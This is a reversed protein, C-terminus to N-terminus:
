GESRLEALCEKIVLKMTESKEELARFDRYLERYTADPVRTGMLEWVKAALYDVLVRPDETSLCDCYDCFFANELEPLSTGRESARSKATQYPDSHSSRYTRTKDNCFYRFMIKEDQM